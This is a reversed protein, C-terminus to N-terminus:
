IFPQFSASMERSSVITTQLLNTVIINQGNM